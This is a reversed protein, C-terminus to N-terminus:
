ETTKFYLSVLKYADEFFIAMRNPPYILRAHLHLKYHEILVSKAIFAVEGSFGAEFSKKCVFAVLALLVGSYKKNRGYNQPATEVLHMEYFGESKKISILGQIEGGAIALKYVEREQNKVEEIWTFRWGRAKRIKPYDNKDIKQVTAEHVEKTSVEILADPLQYEPRPISFM